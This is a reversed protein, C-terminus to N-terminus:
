IDDDHCSLRTDAVKCVILYPTQLSHVFLRPNTVKCVIWYLFQLSYVLEKLVKSKKLRYKIGSRYCNSHVNFIFYNKNISALIYGIRVSVLVFTIALQCCM